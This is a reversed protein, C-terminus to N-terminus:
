RTSGLPLQRHMQELQGYLQKQWGAQALDSPWLFLAAIGNQRYVDSRSAVNAAQGRGPIYELVAGNYTPLTFDPRQIRRHGDACILTPQRYFFPIRYHELMQGIRAHGECQYEPALRGVFHELDPALAPAIV